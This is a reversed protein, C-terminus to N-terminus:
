SKVMVSAKYDATASVVVGTGDHMFVRASGVAGFWEPPMTSAINATPYLITTDTYGSNRSVVPVYNGWFDQVQLGYHTGAAAPITGSPIVMGLAYQGVDMVFPSSYATASGWEIVSEYYSRDTPVYNSRGSVAM